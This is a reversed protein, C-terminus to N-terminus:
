LVKSRHRKILTFESMCAAFKPMKEIQILVFERHLYCNMGPWYTAIIFWAKMRLAELFLTIVVNFMRLLM